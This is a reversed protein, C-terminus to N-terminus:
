NLKGVHSLALGSLVKYKSRPIGQKGIKRLVNLVLRCNVNYPYMMLM